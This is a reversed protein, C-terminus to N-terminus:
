DLEIAIEKEALNYGAFVGVAGDDLINDPAISYEVFPNGEADSNISSSRLNQFLVEEVNAVQLRVTTERVEVDTGIFTTSRGSLTAGDELVDTQFEDGDFFLSFEFTEPEQGEYQVTSTSIAGLVYFNREGLIDDFIVDIDAVREGFDTERITIRENIEVISRPIECSTNYEQGEAVVNLFYRQDPAIDLNEASTLYNKEEQSYVLQVTNGTEDSISVLADRILFKEENAEEDIFSFTTGVSPLVRSVHVRLLTDQPSIYSRIFIKEGTQLLKESDVIKQCSTLAILVLLVTTIYKKMM